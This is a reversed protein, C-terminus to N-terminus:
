KRRGLAAAGSFLNSATVPSVAGGMGAM